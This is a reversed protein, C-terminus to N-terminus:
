SFGTRYEKLYNFISTYSLRRATKELRNLTEPIYKLHTTKGNNVYFGAFCGCAKFGRQLFQLQILFETETFSLPKKFPKSMASWYASLLEKQVEKGLFVYSDYFLSTLDYCFPGFGGDQFDIMRLTGDHILMLNRSHFDRHCPTFLTKELQSSINEMDKLFGNHYHSFFSERKLKKFYFAKMNELATETEQLFFEKGFRPATIKLSTQLLVLEEIAQLYLPLAQSLGKIKVFQELTRDGLDELLLLGKQFDVKYIKPVKAKAKELLKQIRVFDKLSPDEAGSSMLMYNKEGTKLRTYIRHGGDGPLPIKETNKPLFSLFDKM